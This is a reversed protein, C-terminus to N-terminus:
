MGRMCHWLRAWACVFAPGPAEYISARTSTSSLISGAKQKPLGKELFRFPRIREDAMLWCVGIAGKSMLTSTWLSAAFQHRAVGKIRPCRSTWQSLSESWCQGRCIEAQRQSPQAPRQEIGRSQSSLRRPPQRSQGSRRQKKRQHKMTKLYTKSRRWIQHMWMRQSPLLKSSWVRQKNGQPLLDSSRVRKTQRQHQNKPKTPLKNPM